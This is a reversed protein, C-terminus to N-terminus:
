GGCQAPMTKKDPATVPLEYKLSVQAFAAEAKWALAVVAVKLPSPRVKAVASQSV